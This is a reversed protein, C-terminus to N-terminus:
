HSWCKALQTFRFCGCTEPPCLEASLLESCITLLLLVKKMWRSIQMQGIFILICNFLIVSTYDLNTAPQCFGAQLLLYNLKSASRWPLLLLLQKYWMMETSHIHLWYKICKHSCTQLKVKLLSEKWFLITPAPFQMCKFLATCIGWIVSNCEM